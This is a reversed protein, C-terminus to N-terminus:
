SSAGIGSQELARDPTSVAVATEAMPSIKTAGAGSSALVGVLVTAAWLAVAGYFKYSLILKWLGGNNVRDFINWINGYALLVAGFGLLALATM